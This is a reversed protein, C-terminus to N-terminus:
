TYNVIMDAMELLSTDWTKKYLWALSYCLLGGYEIFAYGREGDAHRNFEGTEIDVIHGKITQRLHKETLVPDIEWLIDWVPAFPRAEYLDGMETSFDVPKPTESSKFKM